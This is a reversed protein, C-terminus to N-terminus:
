VTERQFISCKKKMTFHFFSLVSVPIFDGGALSDNENM